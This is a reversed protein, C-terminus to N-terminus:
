REGEHVQLVDLPLETFPEIGQSRSGAGLQEV